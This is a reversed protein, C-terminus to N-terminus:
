YTVGWGRAGRHSGGGTLLRNGGGGEDPEVDPAGERGLSGSRRGTIRPITFPSASGLSVGAGCHACQTNMLRMFIIHSDVLPQPLPSAKAQHLQAFPESGGGGM